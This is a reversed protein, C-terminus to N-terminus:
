ECKKGVTSQIEDSLPFLQFNMQCVKKAGECKEVIKVVRERFVAFEQLLVDYCTDSIGMTVGVAFRKDVSFEHLAAGALEIMKGNFSCRALQLMKENSKGSTLTKNTHSYLGSAEKKIFGLRELLAIGQKANHSTIKPHLAQAITDYENECSIMTVLERLAPFYWKSLYTYQDAELQHEKVFDAMILMNAYHRQKEIALTAQNFAVLVRFYEAEKGILGFGKITQAISIETLNREGKVVRQYLSVSSYGAKQAFWRYSFVSSSAKMFTYYDAMYQRYDVYSFIKNM